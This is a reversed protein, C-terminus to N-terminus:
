CAVFHAAAFVRFPLNKDLSLSKTDHCAYTELRALRLFRQIRHFLMQISWMADDEQLGGICAVVLVESLYRGVRWAELLICANEAMIVGPDHNCFCLQASSLSGEFIVRLDGRGICFLDAFNMFHLWIDIRLHDSAFVRRLM